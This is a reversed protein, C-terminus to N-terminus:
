IIWFSLSCCLRWPLSLCPIPHISQVDQERYNYHHNPPEQGPLFDQRFDEGAGVVVIREEPGVPVVAELPAFPHIAEFTAVPSVVELAVTPGVAELTVTPIIVEPTAPSVVLDVGAFTVILHVGSGSGVTDEDAVCVIHIVYIAAWAEVLDLGYV